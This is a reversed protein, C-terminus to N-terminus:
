REPAVPPAGYAPLDKLIESFDLKEMLEVIVKISTAFQRGYEGAQTTATWGGLKEVQINTLGCRDTAWDRWFRRFDHPTIRHNVKVAKQYVPMWSDITKAWLPDSNKLDGRLYAEACAKMKSTSTYREFLWGSEISEVFEGFGRAMAERHVVFLRSSSGTKVRRTGTDDNERTIKMVLHDGHWAFDERRLGLAEGARLGHLFMLLPGWYRYTHPLESKIRPQVTALLAPSFIKVLTDEIEEATVVQAEEADKASKKREVKRMLNEAVWERKKECWTLFTKVTVRQNDNVIGAYWSRMEDLTVDSVMRDPGVYEAFAQLFGEKTTSAQNYSWGKEARTYCDNVYEDVAQGIPKSDVGPVRNGGGNGNGGNTGNPVEERIVQRLVDADGIPAEEVLGHKAEMERDRYVEIEAKRQGRSFMKALGIVEAVSAGATDIGADKLVRLLDGLQQAPLQAAITDRRHELDESFLEGAVRVPGGSRVRPARDEDVRQKVHAALAVRLADRMKLIEADPLGVDTAERVAAIAADIQQDVTAALDRAVELDSTRLSVVSERGLVDQVDRPLQRRKQLVGRRLVLGGGLSKRDSTM